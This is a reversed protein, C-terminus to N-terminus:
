EGKTRHAPRRRAVGDEDALDDVLLAIQILVGCPRAMLVCTVEADLIHPLARRAGHRAELEQAARDALGGHFHDAHRGEADALAAHQEHAASRPTLGSTPKM